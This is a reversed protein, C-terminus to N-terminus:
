GGDMYQGVCVYGDRTVDSDTVDIDWTAPEPAGDDWIKAQITQRVM